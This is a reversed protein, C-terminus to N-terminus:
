PEAFLDAAAMADRRRAKIGAARMPADYRNHCRQCWARLNSPDVHEPTHDLHACTLVVISGTLPHPKGQDAGCRECKWGARERISLSIAKWNSPYRARNEARIPM